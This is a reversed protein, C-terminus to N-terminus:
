TFILRLLAILFSFNFTFFTFALDLMLSCLLAFYSTIPDCIRINLEPLNIENITPVNREIYPRVRPATSDWPNTLM